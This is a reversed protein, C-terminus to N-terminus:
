SCRGFQAHRSFLKVSITHKNNHQFRNRILIRSFTVKIPIFAEKASNIWVSKLWVVFIQQQFRAVIKQQTFLWRCPHFCHVFWCIFLFFMVKFSLNHLFVSQTSLLHIFKFLNMIFMWFEHLSLSWTMACGSWKLWVLHSRIGPKSLSLSQRKISIKLKEYIDFTNGEAFWRSFYHVHVNSM